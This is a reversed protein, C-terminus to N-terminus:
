HTRDGVLDLLDDVSLELKASVRTGRVEIAVADLLKQLEPSEGSISLLARLGTFIDSLKKASAASGATAEIEVFVSGRREGAVAVISTLDAKLMKARAGSRISDMTKGEFAAIFVVGAGRKFGARSGLSKTTGRRADITERVASEHESVILLDGFVAIYSDDAQYVDAGGYAPLKKVEDPSEKVVAAVLKKAGPVHVVIAGDENEDVWLTISQTGSLVEVVLDVVDSSLEGDLEKGILSGLDGADKDLKTRASWLRTKTLATVDVHVVGEASAPVDEPGYPKAGAAGAAWAVLLLSISTVAVVLIRRM